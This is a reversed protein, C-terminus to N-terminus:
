SMSKAQEVLLHSEVISYIFVNHSISLTKKKFFLFVQILM